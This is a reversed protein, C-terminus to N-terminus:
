TGLSEQLDPRDQTQLFYNRAQFTSWFPSHFIASDLFYVCSLHDTIQVIEDPLQSFLLFLFHCKQELRECIFIKNSWINESISGVHQIFEQVKSCFFSQSPYTRKPTPTPTPTPTCPHSHNLFLSFLIFTLATTKGTERQKRQFTLNM